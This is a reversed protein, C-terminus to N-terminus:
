RGVASSGEEEEHKAAYKLLEVAMLPKVGHAMAAKMFGREFAEKM